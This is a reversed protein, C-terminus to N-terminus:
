RDPRPSRSRGAPRGIRCPRPTRTQPTCAATRCRGDFLDPDDQEDNLDNNRVLSNNTGVLHWQGRNLERSDDSVYVRIADLMTDGDSDQTGVFYNFYLFPEDSATLVEPVELEKM